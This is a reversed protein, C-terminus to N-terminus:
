PVWAGSADVTYGDITTDAAMHGDEYFFYCNEGAWGWGTQMWGDEDFYYWNGNDELWGTAWTGDSNRYGWRGEWECWGPEFYDPIWAGDSGVYATGDGLWTDAAMRGDDYFFYEKDGITQWGTRRWGDDALWYWSGDHYLWGEAWSGDEQRYAWMGEWEVWEPDWHEYLKAGSGDVYSHGDVWTDAAMRGDGYFYYEVGDVTQWGTRMWGDDALWYWSGDHYLWGEAWSGDEQRYAWMGEWEVWGPICYNPIYRGSADVYASGDGLWTDAAMKGDDYFFYESGDITQWGTRMWGDEALWYWSGDVLLWKEAWDGNEFQYAWRGNWEVWGSTRRRGNFGPIWDGDNGFYFDGVWANAAMIGNSYFYYTKGDITELGNRAPVGNKLYSWLVGDSNVWSVWGTKGSQSVATYLYDTLNGNDELNYIWVSNGSLDTVLAHGSQATTYFSTGYERQAYPLAAAMDESSFFLASGANGNSVVVYGPKLADFMKKTNSGSYGHHGAVVIDVSGYDRGIAEATSDVAANVINIDALDVVTYDGNTIATVISNGNVDSDNYLNYLRFSMDGMSFSIYDGYPNGPDGHSADQKSIDVTNAGKEQMNKLAQYVFAQNHWSYDHYGALDDEQTGAHEYEKYYYTTNRDVLNTQAIEAVGGIHDSHAHTGIIFDLHSVGLNKMMYEAAEKGNRCYVQSSLGASQTVSYIAGNYDQITDSYRHGTDILGYHGNSEVLIMNGEAGGAMNFYYIKDDGAAEAAPVTGSPGLTGLLTLMLTFSLISSLGRFRKKM